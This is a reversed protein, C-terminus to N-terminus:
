FGLARKQSEIALEILNLMSNIDTTVQQNSLRLVRYGENELWEDRVLDHRKQAPERHIPGDIEILLKLRLSGFDSRYPGIEVQRRFHTGDLPICNLNDWLVQEADTEARGRRGTPRKFRDLKSM